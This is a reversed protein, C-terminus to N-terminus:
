QGLEQKLIDIEKALRNALGVDVKLVDVSIDHLKEVVTPLRPKIFLEAWPYQGIVLDAMTQIVDRYEGQSRIGVRKKFTESLTRLDFQVVINTHINTPLLGRADEPKVGLDVLCKYSDNISKMTDIYIKQIHKNKDLISPGTEYGFAMDKNAVKLLRMTQQAYKGTRTRVLQHTFARTVQEILFTFNVFEWSSPITRSMYELEQLKREEPWSRIEDMLGPSLNLRTQKTFILLNEPEPTSNILSIKM